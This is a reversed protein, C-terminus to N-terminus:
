EDKKRGPKINDYVCEKFLCGLCLSAKFYDVVEINGKLVLIGTQSEGIKQAIMTPCRESM